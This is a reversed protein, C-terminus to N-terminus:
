ARQFVFNVDCLHTPGQLAKYLTDQAEAGVIDGVSWTLPAKGDAEIKLDEGSADSGNAYSHVAKGSSDTLSYSGFSPMDATTAKELKVAVASLNEIAYGDPEVVSGDPMIECAVLTPVRVMIIPDWTATVTTDGTINSFDKDWGKFTWRDDTPDAPAKAGEGRYVKQEDIVGGFGDEFRVTYQPVPEFSAYISHPAVVHTFEYSSIAGMSKGDVTVDKITYHEDPTITYSMDNKWRVYTTGEDSITGGPGAEAKIPQDFAKFPLLLQTGCGNGQWTFTVGATSGTTVFGTDYTNNDPRVGTFRTATADIDLYNTAPVWVTDGFGSNLVLQETFLPPDKKVDIDWFAILSTGSAPTNTGKKVLRLSVTARVNVNHGTTTVADITTANGDDLIILGPITHGVFINSITLIVDIDDGDDDIGSNRWTLTFSGPLTTNANIQSNYIVTNSTKEWIVSRTKQFLPNTTSFEADAISLPYDISVTEPPVESFGGRNLTAAHAQATGAALAAVVAMSAALALLWGGRSRAESM